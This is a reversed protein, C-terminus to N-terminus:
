HFSSDSAEGAAHGPVSALVDHGWGILTDNKFIMPTTEDRTTKGDSHSRHTRYFLIRFENGDMTYGESYSPMGMTDVVSDREMGIELLAIAKRNQRQDSLWDEEGGNQEGAIVVCGSLTTLIILSTLFRTTTTM